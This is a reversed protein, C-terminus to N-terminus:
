HARPHRVPKAGLVFVQRPEHGDARRRGVAPRAVIRIRKQGGDVLPGHDPPRAHGHGLGADAVDRVVSDRGALLALLKIEQLRDVPLLHFPGALVVFQLGCDIRELQGVPHLGVHGAQHVNGALGVRRQCEVPNAFLFGVVEAALASAPTRYM